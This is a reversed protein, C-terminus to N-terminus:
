DDDKCKGDVCRDSACDDDTECRRHKGCKDCDPGGCDKDTEAGDKIGNDCTTPEAGADGGGEGGGSGGEGGGGGGGAGGATATAGGSEALPGGGTSSADEERPEWELGVLQGCGTFVV